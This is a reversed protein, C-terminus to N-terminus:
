AFSLLGACAPARCGESALTPEAALGLMSSLSRSFGCVLSGLGFQSSASQQPLGSTPLLPAHRFSQMLHAASCIVQLSSQSGALPEARTPAPRLQHCQGAPLPASSARCCDSQALAHRPSIPWACILQCLSPQGDEAGSADPPSKDCAPHHQEPSQQAICPSSYLSRVTCHVVPLM